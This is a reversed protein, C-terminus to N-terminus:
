REHCIECDLGPDPHRPDKITSGPFHCLRCDDFAPDSHDAPAPPASNHDAEEHCVACSFQGQPLHCEFCHRTPGSAWGGRHSRPKTNSHCRSCYDEQHCAMCRSRNWAAEAAHTVKRWSANHDRPKEDQHCRVCTDESHCTLCSSNPAKSEIGHHMEWDLKHTANVPSSEAHCVSCGKRPATEDDHCGICAEMPPLVNEKSSTSAAARTHCDGCQANGYKHTEHSFVIEETGSLKPYRVEIQDPSKVVHCLLCEASPSDEDIEHCESCVGHDPRGMAGAASPKHCSSCEMENEIVHLSHSYNLGFRDKKCGPLLGLVAIVALAVFVKDFYSKM